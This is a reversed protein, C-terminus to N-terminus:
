VSKSQHSLFDYDSMIKRTCSNRTDKRNAITMRTGEYKIFM